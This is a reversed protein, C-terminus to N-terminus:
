MGLRYAAKHAANSGYKLAEAAPRVLMRGHYYHADFFILAAMIALIRLM